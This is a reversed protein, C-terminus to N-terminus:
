NKSKIESLRQKLLDLFSKEKYPFEYDTKCVKYNESDGLKLILKQVLETDSIQQVIHMRLSVPHHLDDWLLPKLDFCPDYVFLPLKSKPYSANVLSDVYPKMQIKLDFNDKGLSEEKEFTPKYISTSLKKKENTQANCGFQLLMLAVLIVLRICNHEKTNLQHKEM